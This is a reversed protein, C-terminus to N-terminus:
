VANQNICPAILVNWVQVPYLAVVPLQISTHATPASTCLYGGGGEEVRGGGGGLEGRGGDGDQQDRLRLITVYRHCLSM